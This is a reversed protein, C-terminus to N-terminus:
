IQHLPLIDMEVVSEVSANSLVQAFCTAWEIAEAKSNVQIVAYGGILEKSEVFPGDIVSRKGASLRLRAGQSSPQLREAM